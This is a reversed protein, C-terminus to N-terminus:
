TLLKHAAELPLLACKMRNPSLDIELLKLMDSSNMKRLVEKKKGKLHETLLSASATMIACGEGFFKIDEITGKEIKITMKIKDGCLPNDAKSSATADDIEGKNRPHKHHELIIEKYVTM